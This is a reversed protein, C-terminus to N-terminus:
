RASSARREARNLQEAKWRMATFIRSRGSPHDFFIIEELAGPDLKRYEGLKLAVEAAGDPQGAANLGFLDAEAELTRTFSNTVPTLAFLYVSFLLLLLPLGALDGIGSVRWRSGFRRLVGDFSRRLFALGAVIVMGTLASGEYPHHLIFHGMEHGM